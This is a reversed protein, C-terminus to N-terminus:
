NTTCDPGASTQWEGNRVPRVGPKHRKVVYVPLLIIILFNLILFLFYGPPWTVSGSVFSGRMPEYFSPALTALNPTLVHKIECADKLLNNIEAAYIELDAANQDLAKGLFTSIERNTPIDDANDFCLIRFNKRDFLLTRYEIRKRDEPALCDIEAANSSEVMLLTVSENFQPFRRQDHFAHIRIEFADAGNSLLVWRQSITNMEFLWGRLPILIFLIILVAVGIAAIAKLPTNLIVGVRVGTCWVDKGCEPCVSSEWGRMIYLCNACGPTEPSVGAKKLMRRQRIWQILLLAFPILCIVLLMLFPFLNISISRM